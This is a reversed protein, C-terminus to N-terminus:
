FETERDPDSRSLGHAHVKAALEEAEIALTRTIHSLSGALGLLALALACASVYARGGPGPGM